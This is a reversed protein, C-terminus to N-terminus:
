LSLSLRATLQAPSRQCVLLAAEPQPSLVWESHCAQCVPQTSRALLTHRQESNFLLHSKFLLVRAMPLTRDGSGTCRATRLTAGRVQLFSSVTPSLQDCRLAYLGGFICCEACWGVAAFVAPVQAISAKDYVRDYQPQTRLGKVVKRRARDCALSEARQLTARAFGSVCRRKILQMGNFLWRQVAAAAVHIFSHTPTRLLLLPYQCYPHTGRSAGV